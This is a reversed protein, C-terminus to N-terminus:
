WCRACWMRRSTTRSSRRADASDGMGVAHSRLLNQQLDELEDPPVPVDKFEGFGTTIGYDQVPRESREGRSM